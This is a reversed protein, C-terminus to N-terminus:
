RREYILRGNRITFHVKSFASVDTIPDGDLVVLDAMKGSSVTGKLAAVGFRTAPAVTLMRLIDRPTLGCKTLAAFEDATTYDTMYGVDTGFMLDGGLVKFQRVEAYIPDLFAPDTSATTAFMKLTPMMSMHHDVVSQLVAADVGEPISPAHALVDVLSDIAAKTGALNSPHAFALQAHRHAVEVAAKAIDVPMPLVSHRTVLSGTFLKLLDAGRRINREEIEAAAEPTEPQPMQWRVLFPLDALYFPIGHPPYMGSGATYIAPGKLDGTEIRRRLSLTQRLDSGLDAVTTFGRSTLMDALQANLTASSKFASYDWKSETLHIHANWFGATVTCNPCELVNTDQPIAVDQGVGVIIGSRVLVRAHEIPESDPTTYVRVDRIALTTEPLTISPHPNRLPWIMLFYFALVLLLIPIQLRLFLRMAKLIPSIASRACATWRAAIEMSSIAGLQRM